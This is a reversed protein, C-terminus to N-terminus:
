TSEFVLSDSSFYSNDRIDTWIRSTFYCKFECWCVCVLRPLNILFFSVCSSDQLASFLLSTRKWSYVLGKNHPLFYLLLFYEKEGKFPACDGGQSSREQTREMVSVPVSEM